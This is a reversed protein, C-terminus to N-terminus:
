AFVPLEGVDGTTINADKSESKQLLAAFDEQVAAADTKQPFIDDPGVAATSASRCLYWHACASM